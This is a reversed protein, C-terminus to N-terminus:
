QRGILPNIKDRLQSEVIPIIADYNSIEIRITSLRFTEDILNERAFLKMAFTTKHLDKFIHGKVRESINRSKGIYIPIWEGLQTHRDVRKQKINPTFNKLYKLDHWKTKFDAVWDNFYSFKNSNKIEILYIGSYKIESWPIAIEAEDNLIFKRIEQFELNEAIKRVLKLQESLNGDIEEFEKM